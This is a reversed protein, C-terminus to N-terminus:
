SQDYMKYIILQILFIKHDTKFAEFHRWELQMSLFDLLQIGSVSFKVWEDHFRDYRTLAM